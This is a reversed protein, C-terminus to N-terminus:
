SSTRSSPWAPCAGGASGAAGRRHGRRAGAVGGPGRLTVILTLDSDQPVVRPLSVLLANQGRVRLHLLPGYEVSTVDTVDLAEALRLMVTTVSTSRVRMALRARGDIFPREPVVSVDINYDLVDYERGADDSYFRGRAAIKAASAYLAITRKEDRQFLSVDEAQSSSRSFTLTDYRRTEVEAVFDESPPLLHWRESTVDECTWPSRDQRIRARVGAPRAADPARRRAARDAPGTTVRKAYDSPSLRIFATEFPTALSETGAFIRLQGREAPPTPSFKM